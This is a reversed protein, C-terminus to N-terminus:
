DGRRRASFNNFVAILEFRPHRYLLPLLAAGTYGRAGVVAVKIM